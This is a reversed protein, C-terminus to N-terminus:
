DVPDILGCYPSISWERLTDQPPPLTKYKYNEIFDPYQSVVKLVMDTVKDFDVDAVGNVVKDVGMIMLQHWKVVFQRPNSKMPMMLRISNTDDDSLTM